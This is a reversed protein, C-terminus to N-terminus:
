QVMKYSPLKILTNMMMEHEQIKQEIVADYDPLGMDFNNDNIIIIPDNLDSIPSTVPDLSDLTDTTTTSNSRGFLESNMTNSLGVEDALQFLLDHPLTLSHKDLALFKSNKEIIKKVNKSNTLYSKVQIQGIRERNAWNWIKLFELESMNKREGHKVSHKVTQKVNLFGHVHHNEKFNKLPESSIDDYKTSTPHIDCDYLIGIYKAISGIFIDHIFEYSKLQRIINKYVQITLEVWNLNKRKSDKTILLNIMNFNIFENKFILLLDIFEEPIKLNKDIPITLSTFVNYNGHKQIHNIVAILREIIGNKFKFQTFDLDLRNIKSNDWLIDVHNKLAKSNKYSLLSSNSIVFSIVSNTHIKNPLSSLDNIYQQLRFLTFYASPPIQYQVTPSISTPNHYRSDRLDSPSVVTTFATM